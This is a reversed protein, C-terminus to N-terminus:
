PRRTVRLASNRQAGVVNMLGTDVTTEVSMGVRVLQVLPQNPAFVIKVPFRQVIKTFNGSANNPPIPAFAAGSSGPLSDVVGDLEIRYADVHIHARQGPLMHQLAVERYNATVYIGDLPVIIMLPSGASVVDGVQISRQDVVGDLPAVVRTYSYNLAAQQLQAGDVAVEAQATQLAEQLRRLEIRASQLQARASSSEAAEQALAAYSQQRQQTTGAGSVDLQSFREADARALSLRADASAVQASDQLIVAPQRELQAQAERARSEDSSLAAQAHELATREDRDDIVVLLQGTRVGVNDDVAVTVVQGSIRPAVTAYHATVYADDTEQHRRPLFILLLVVLAFVLAIPGGILAVRIITRREQTREAAVRQQETQPQEARPANAGGQQSPGHVAQDSPENPM